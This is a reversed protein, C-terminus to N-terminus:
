DLVMARRVSSVSSATIRGSSASFSRTVTIEPRRSFARAPPSGITASSRGNSTRTSEYKGFEDAMRTPGTAGFWAVVPSPFLQSAVSLAGSPPALERGFM